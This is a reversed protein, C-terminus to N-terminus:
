IAPARNTPRAPQLALWQKQLDSVEERTAGLESWERASLDLGNALENLTNSIALDLTTESAGPWRMLLEALESRSIGLRTEFEDDLQPTTAVFALCRRLLDLQKSKLLESRM